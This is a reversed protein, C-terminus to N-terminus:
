EVKEIGVGFAFIRQLVPLRHELLLAELRPVLQVHDFALQRDDLVGHLEAAILRLRLSLLRPSRTPLRHGDAAVLYLLLDEPETVRTPRSQGHGLKVLLPDAFAPSGINRIGKKKEQTFDERTRYNIEHCNQVRM